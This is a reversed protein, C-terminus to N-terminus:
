LKRMYRSAARLLHKMKEKSYLADYVDDITLTDRNFLITDRFSSYSTPLLCLLILALDEKDHKVELTEMVAVIEKFLALYDEM